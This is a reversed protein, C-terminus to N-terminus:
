AQPARDARRDGAHEHRSHLSYAIDCSFPSPTLGLDVLAIERDWYLVARTREEPWGHFNSMDWVFDPTVIEAAFQGTAAFQEYGGRVIEV